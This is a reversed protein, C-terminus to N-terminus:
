TNGNDAEGFQPKRRILDRNQVTVSEMFSSRIAIHRPM